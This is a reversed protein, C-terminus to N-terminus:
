GCLAPGARISAGMWRLASIAIAAVLLARGCMKCSPRKVKAWRKEKKEAPTAEVM